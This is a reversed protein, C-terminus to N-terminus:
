CRSHKVLHKRPVIIHSLLPRNGRNHISRLFQSFTLSIFNFLPLSLLLSSLYSPPFLFIFLNLSPSQRSILSLSLLLPILTNSFLSPASARNPCLRRKDNPRMHPTMHRTYPPMPSESLALNLILMKKMVPITCTARYQVTLSQAQVKLVKFIQWTRIVLHWYNM